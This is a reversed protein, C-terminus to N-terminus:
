GVRLYDRHTKRLVSSPTEHNREARKLLAERLELGGCPSSAPASGLVPRGGHRRLTQKLDNGADAKTALQEVLQRTVAIGSATKVYTKKAM